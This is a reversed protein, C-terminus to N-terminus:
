RSRTRKRQELWEKMTLHENEKPLNRLKEIMLDRVTKIKGQPFPWKPLKLEGEEHYETSGDPNKKFPM